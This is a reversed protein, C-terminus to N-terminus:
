FQFRAGFQVQFVQSGPNTALNIQGFLPSNPNQERIQLFNVNTPGNLGCLQSGISCYQALPGSTTNTGPNAFIINAFNFLNFFETSFILRTREGFEFRKQVRLDVDYVPRNRFANRNFEQGREILPRDNFVSDGNLDAGAYANIPTGSRLRIASSVEFGYPLFIVPNAVFQHRRDLRAPGYEGTLDYPNAYAVGGSDRENDDDSESKSLTYYANLQGWRRVLRMRFTLGNFESKGTSERVQVPGLAFLNNPNLAPNNTPRQRTTVSGTPFSISTGTAPNVFGSPTVLAIYTRGSQLIQDIIGSSVMANYNAATNSAQLFARYQEGTLPAPVNLDRNRQLRDTRVFSYDVGVVFNSMVEREFAFGFQVSRPNKFDEAHGTVTAGVFPNASLGLASSIAAIQAPTVDPLSSLSSNNLNIGAIAFQRYVTNPTCAAVQAATGTPNCGTISIYQQGAATGLFTNFATQSFGTFPLTTSVNGPTARYNNVTDAFILLPTRAYYLGTFGRIVTKGDGTPDYAFGLRPGVQWGSNPVQTPDFGRGRIPFNTNQVVNILQTNDAEPEPNFQQELRLGYNLTFRPTLRWSDQAFFSLEHVPFDVMLNGIQRNYRANTDDFRGLYLIPAGTAPTIIQRTSSINRLVGALGSFANAQGTSSVTGNAAAGTLSYAGFQNFGFRQSAFLRSYEGGVKFTHDGSVYTFADTIQHRTDFQTTPLFNRSGYQAFNAGFFVNPEEANAERPRQERAYQFRLENIAAATLNSIFQGVVINNRNREIGNASLASPTTPDLTTEGTAAANLADNRSYSYRVNFRNANNVNWDVRGLLAYADNTQEFPVELSRLFNFAEVGRDGAPYNFSGLSGFLVQRPARFRQQEYSAFYFLKDKVIPGGISGGFQHQTPALTADIGLASLRQEQIAQSYKNARALQEPRWLYFLSGRLDNTGSKTVANVIGGTSRGFEATYGAAVVQFEKISEQPITFAQNSREGGRIGGFFPQNFDVGDVNINSNIGRQGSLSIQGRQPDVQATPTLTVFDQFRRGNIPLNSIATEDVVADSNSTTTQVGEATVEVQATAAAAGLTFNADTTRGVQVEVDLTQEAFGSSAVKVTYQGPQLLVFRYVGEDSTTQTQTQNTGKNTATVTANPVVAGNPDNVVGTIQGTSAQSQAAAGGIGAILCFVALMSARIFNISLVKSM